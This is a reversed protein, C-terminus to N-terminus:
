VLAGKIKFPCKAQAATKRALTYARDKDAERYLDTRLDKGPSPTVLQVAWFAGKKRVTVYSTTPPALHIVNSM